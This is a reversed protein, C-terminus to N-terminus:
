PQPTSCSGSIEPTVGSRLIQFPPAFKRTSTLCTAPSKPRGGAYWRTLAAKFPIRVRVGALKELISTSPRAESFPKLAKM